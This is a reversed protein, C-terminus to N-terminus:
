PYIILKYYEGDQQLMQSGKFFGTLHPSESRVIKNFHALKEFSLINRNHKTTCKFLRNSAYFLKQITTKIGPPHPIQRKQLALWHSQPMQGDLEVALM